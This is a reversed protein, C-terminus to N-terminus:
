YLKVLAYLKRVETTLVRGPKFLRALGFDSIKLEGSGSVLVNQPKLDRHILGNNHIAAVGNLLQSM